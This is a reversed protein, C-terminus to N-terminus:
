LNVGSKKSLYAARTTALVFADPAVALYSDRLSNDPNTGYFMHAHIDILGPVVLLGTVDVVKLATSPAINTEVLAVTSSRRAWHWPHSSQPRIPSAKWGSKALGPEGPWHLGAVWCAQDPDFAHVDTGVGIRPNIM